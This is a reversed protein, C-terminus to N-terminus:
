SQEAVVRTTSSVVM